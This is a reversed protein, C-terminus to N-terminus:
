LVGRNGPDSTVKRIEHLDQFLTRQLRSPDGQSTRRFCQLAFAEVSPRIDLGDM